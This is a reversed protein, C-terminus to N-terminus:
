RNNRISNPNDFYSNKKREKQKRKQWTASYRWLMIGGIMASIAYITVTVFQLSEGYHGTFHNQIVTQANM